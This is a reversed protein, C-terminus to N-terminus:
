GQMCICLYMVFMDKYYLGNANRGVTAYMTNLTKSESKNKHKATHANPNHWTTKSYQTHACQISSLYSFDLLPHELYVGGNSM